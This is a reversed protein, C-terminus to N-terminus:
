EEAGKNGKAKREVRASSAIGGRRGKIALRQRLGPQSRKIAKAAPMIEVQVRERGRRALEPEEEKSLWSWARRWLGLSWGRSTWCEKGESGGGGGGFSVSADRIAKRLSQAGFRWALPLPIHLAATRRALHLQFKAEKTPGEQAGSGPPFDTVGGAPIAPRKAVLNHAKRM